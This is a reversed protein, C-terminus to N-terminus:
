LLYSSFINNYGTFSNLLNVAYVCVQPDDLSDLNVIFNDTSTNDCPRGSGIVIKFQDDPFTEPQSAYDPAMVDVSSMSYSTKSTGAINEM